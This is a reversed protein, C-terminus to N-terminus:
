AHQLYLSLSITNHIATLKDKDKIKMISKFKAKLDYIETKEGQRREKEVLFEKGSLNFLCKLNLLMISVVLPEADEADSDKLQVTCAINRARTFM